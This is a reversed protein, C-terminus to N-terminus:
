PKCQMEIGCSLTAERKLSGVGCACWLASLWQTRTPGRHPNRGAASPGPSRPPSPPAAPVPSALVISARPPSAKYRSLEEASEIPDPQTASAHLYSLRHDPPRVVTPAM